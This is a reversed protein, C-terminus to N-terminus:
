AEHPRSILAVPGLRSHGPGWKRVSNATVNSRTGCYVLRSHRSLAQHNIPDARPDARPDLQRGVCTMKAHM